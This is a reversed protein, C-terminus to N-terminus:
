AKKKGRKEALYHVYEYAQVQEPRPLSRYDSLLTQEDATLTPERKTPASFKKTGFENELGLLYDTSVEFFEALKILFGSAPENLGKEWRGINTRSTSIANAVDTQSLNREERLELLRM